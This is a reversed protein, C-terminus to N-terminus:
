AGAIIPLSGGAAIWGSRVLGVSSNTVEFGHGHLRPDDHALQTGALPAPPAQVPAQLVVPTAVATTTSPASTANQLRDVAAAMNAVARDALKQVDAVRKEVEARLVAALSDAVCARRAIANNM